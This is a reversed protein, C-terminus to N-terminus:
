FPLDDPSIEYNEEEYDTTYGNNFGNQSFNNNQYTNSQVQANQQEASNKTELFHVSQTIVETVYIRQGQQNDYSRTQIRGEVGILSGKHLYQAMNDATKNWAVCQIFDADPQGEQKIARNVALTFSAVSAGSQTKRLDIEKTIRGVLVVNNIM